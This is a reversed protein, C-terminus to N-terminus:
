AYADVLSVSTIRRRGTRSPPVTAVADGRREASEVQGRTLTLGGAGLLDRLQPLCQSLLARAGPEAALIHVQAQQGQTEIRITLAGLEAPHLELTAEGLGQDVQWAIREGLDAAFDPSDPVLPPAAPDILTPPPTSSAAAAPMSLLAAAPLPTPSADALSSAPEPVPMPATGATLTDLVADPSALVPAEVANADPTALRADTILPPLMPKNAAPDISGATTGTADNATGATRPAATAATPVTAMAISDFLWGILPTGGDDTTTDETAAPEPLAGARPIEAAVPPLTLLTFPLLPPADAASGPTSAAPLPAAMGGLAPISM